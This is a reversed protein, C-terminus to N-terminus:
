ILPILKRIMVNEKLNTIENEITKELKPIQIDSTINDYFEKWSVMPVTQVGFAASKRVTM